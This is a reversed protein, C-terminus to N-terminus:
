ELDNAKKHAEVAAMMADAIEEDSNSKRPNNTPTAMLARAIEDASAGASYVRDTDLPTERTKKKKM